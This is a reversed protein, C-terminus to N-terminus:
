MSLSPLMVVVEAGGEPLNRARITGAHAEVLKRAIALGLGAGDPRTTFLPDFVRNIDEEPFGPGTDKVAIEIGDGTKSTCITIKGKGGMAQVSNKIINQFVRQLMAPDAAVYKIDKSFKKEITIKKPFGMDGLLSILFNHFNIKRAEPRRHRTLDLLDSAIHVALEANRKIRDLHIEVQKKTEKALKRELAFLSTRIVSLPNQLDHNVEAVIKGLAALRESKRFREERERSHAQVMVAEIISFLGEISSNLEERNKQNTIYKKLNKEIFRIAAILHDQHVGFKAHLRAIKASQIWLNEDLPGKIVRELWTAIGKQMRKEKETGEFRGAMEPLAGIKQTLYEVSEKIGKKLLGAKKQITKGVKVLDIGALAAARRASLPALDM